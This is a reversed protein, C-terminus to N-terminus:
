EGKPPFIKNIFNKIGVIKQNNSGFLYGVAFFVSIMLARWFGLFLLMLAIVAGCIGILWGCQKTGITLWKSQDENTM